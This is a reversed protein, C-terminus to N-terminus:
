FRGCVHLLIDLTWPISISQYVICLRVLNIMSRTVFQNLFICDGYMFSLRGHSISASKEDICWKTQVSSVKTTTCYCCYSFLIIWFGFISVCNVAYWMEFPITQWLHMQKKVSGYTRLVCIVLMRATWRNRRDIRSFLTCFKTMSSTEAKLRDVLCLTIVFVNPEIRWEICLVNKREKKTCEFSNWRLSFLYFVFVISTFVVWRTSTDRYMLTYPIRLNKSPRYM